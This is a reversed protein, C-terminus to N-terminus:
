TYYWSSTTITPSQHRNECVVGINQVLVLHLGPLSLQINFRSLVKNEIHYVFSVQLILAWVSLNTHSTFLSIEFLLIRVESHRAWEAKISFNTLLSFTFLFAHFTFAQLISGIDNIRDGRLWVYYNSKHEDDKGHWAKGFHQAWMPGLRDAWFFLM